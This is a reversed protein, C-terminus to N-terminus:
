NQNKKKYVSVVFSETSLPMAPADPLNVPVSSVPLPSGAVTAVAKRFV